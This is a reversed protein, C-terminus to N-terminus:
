NALILAAETLVIIGLVGAIKKFINAKKHERNALRDAKDLQAACASYMENAIRDKDVILKKLDRTTEIQSTYAMQLTDAKQETAALLSDQTAIFAKLEPVSDAMLVIPPRQKSLKTKLLSIEKDKARLEVRVTSDKSESEKFLTAVQADKHAKQLSLENIRDKFAQNDTQDVPKTPSFLILLAIIVVLGVIICTRADKM